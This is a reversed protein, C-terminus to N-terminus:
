LAQVAYYLFSTPSSAPFIARAIESVLSVTQSPRAHVHVALYSVGLFLSIAIAGLAVLTAAANRGKPPKFASVGNSIAEVGTLASAGSAFARLLVFLGVAGAGAAVPHPVT